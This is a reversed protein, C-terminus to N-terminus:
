TQQDDKAGTRRNERNKQINKFHRALAEERRRTIGEIRRKHEDDVIPYRPPSPPPPDPLKNSCAREPKSPFQKKIIMYTIIDAVMSANFQGARIKSFNPV